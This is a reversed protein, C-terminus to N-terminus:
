IKSRRREEEEEERIRTLRALKANRFRTVGSIWAMAHEFWRKEEETQARRQQCQLMKLKANMLGQTPIEPDENNRILTGNLRIYCPGYIEEYSCCDFFAVIADEMGHNRLVERYLTNSCQRRTKLSSQAMKITIKPVRYTDFTWFAPHVSHANLNCDFSVPAMRYAIMSKIAQREMKSSKFVVSYVVDEISRQVDESPVWAFPNGFKADSAQALPAM